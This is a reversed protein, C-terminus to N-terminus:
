WKKVNQLFGSAVYTSGGVFVTGSEGVEAVAADIAATLSPCVTGEIGHRSFVAATEAATLARGSDPTVFYYVAVRPMHMVIGEVDKDRLFGLVLALPRQRAIQVLRPGLHAWAGTNHGTDAICNVGKYIIHMWRAALGSLAAVQAFGRQVASPTIDFQESLLVLANFVTAANERQCPGALPDAVDGWPTGGFTWGGETETATLYQPNDEAFVVPACNLAAAQNIVRRVEASASGVVVPVRRKIIGAKEATIKEVTDGLIDTHDLSINTIISVLPDVINTSDLRGGLGVEVVAVDVKCSRFWDFAMVTLVEFYSPTFDLELAAFREMFDAVFERPIMRGDIRIRERVDVLHPSTYLGTRYGAATLVAATLSSTSGKGNTGAVHVAKFAASPHGMAADLALVDALGPRYARAGSAHFSGLADLAAMAANYREKLLTNEM